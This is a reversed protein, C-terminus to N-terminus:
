LLATESIPQRAFKPYVCTSGLNLLKEVRAQRATEIVNTAIAINDYLFTAPSRDNAVIGGVRAAALFVAQPKTKAFFSDVDSQRRLDLERRPVTVLTCGEGKLRRILASGVMGGDGAVFVRKGKLSYHAKTENMGSVKSMNSRAWTRM